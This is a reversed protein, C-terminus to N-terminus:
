EGRDMQITYFNEFLKAVLIPGTGGPTPTYTLTDPVSSSEFDGYLRGDKLSYGFDLVVANEKIMQPTVIGPSGVGLIVLDANKLSKLDNGKKLLYIESVRSMLWTAIPKGILNGLGVVAAKMNALNLNESKLIEEVVGVALPSVINRSTYLSGLAREGFIEVDKEYPIANMVQQDQITEPLPIQVLIGGCREDRGVELVKERLEETTITEPFRFLKFDLELALAIKEKQKVFSESAPDNGVLFIGFFNEPKPLEKLRDIIRAAIKKGDIKM